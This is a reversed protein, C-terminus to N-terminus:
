RVCVFFRAANQAGTGGALSHFLVLTGVGGDAREAEGRLADMTRELLPVGGLGDGGAGAGGFYGNAWNNGCGSAGWLVNEERFGAGRQAVVRPESDVLLARARGDEDFLPAHSATDHRAHSWFTGGLQTGCQGVHVHVTTAM